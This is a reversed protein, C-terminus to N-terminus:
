KATAEMATFHKVEPAPQDLVAGVKWNPRSGSSGCACKIQRATKKHIESFLIDSSKPFFNVPAARIFAPRPLASGIFVSISIESNSTLGTDCRANRKEDRDPIVSQGVTEMFAVVRRAAIRGMQFNTILNRVHLVLLNPPANKLSFRMGRMSQSLFINSLNAFPSISTFFQSGDRDSEIDILADNATDMM